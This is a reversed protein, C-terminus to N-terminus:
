TKKPFYFMRGLLERWAKETRMFAYASPLFDLVGIGRAANYNFDVPYSIVDMGRNEFLLQARPMHFASTVLLIKPRQVSPGVLNREFLIKSVERAEEETNVVSGTILISQEPVGLRKAYAAMVNGDPKADPEWPAWGGTFILVPAKGAQYLDIGGWFRDGDNWESFSAKGPAVVRGESLVVIADATSMEKAELHVTGEEVFRVLLDSSVPTSCLGFFVVGVGIVAWRRYLLGVLFFVFVLGTPLLIWPLIKHLYISM